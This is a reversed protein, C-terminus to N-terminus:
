VTSWPRPPGADGPLELRFEAGAGLASECVIRGAMATALEYALALGDGAGSEGATPRPSLLVGRRFLKARDIESLGPGHDIVSVSSIRDEDSQRVSLRIETGPQSFKSANSLLNDLITGVLRADGWAPVGRVTGDLILRQGKARLLPEARAAAALALDSLNVRDTAIRPQGQDLPKELFDDIISTIRDACAVIDHGHVRTTPSGERSILEGRMRLVMLPSRLEHNALAVFRSRISDFAALRRSAAELEGTREAVAAELRAQVVEKRALRWRSAIALGVAGVAILGIVVILGNATLFPAPALFEVDRASDVLLVPWKDGLMASVIPWKVGTFAVRAGPELDAPLLAAEDSTLRLEVIGGLGGATAPDEDMRATIITERERAIVRFLDTEIRVLEGGQLGEILQRATAVRRPTPRPGHAGRTVIADEIFTLENDARAFGVVEVEDGTALSSAVVPRVFAAGGDGAIFFSGDGRRLTVVGKTRTRGSSDAVARYKLLRSPSVSPLAALDRAPEVIAIDDAQQCYLRMGTMQGRENLSAACVGRVAVRAGVLAATIENNRDEVVVVPVRGFATALTAQVGAQSREVVRVVGSLAILRCDQEGNALGLQEAVALAPLPAEGVKTVGDESPNINPAFTGRAMLGRISVLDGRKLTPTGASSSVWIADRDSQVFFDGGASHIFTVVGRVNVPIGREAEEPALRLIDHIESLAQPTEQGFIAPTAEVASCFAAVLLTMALAVVGRKRVPCVGANSM